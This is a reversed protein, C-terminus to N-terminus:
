REPSCGPRRRSALDVIEVQGVEEINGQDLNAIPGLGYYGVFRSDSSWVPSIQRGPASTLAQRHRGLPDITGLHLDQGNRQEFVIRTSDPAWEPLLKTAHDRTIRRTRRTVADVVYLDTGTARHGREYVIAHGAPAWDYGDAASEGNRTLM